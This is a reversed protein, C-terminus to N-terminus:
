LSILMVVASHKVRPKTRLLLVISESGRELKKALVVDKWTLELAGPGQMTLMVSLDDENSAISPLPELPFHDRSPSTKSNRANLIAVMSSYASEECELATKILSVTIEVEDTFKLLEQTM